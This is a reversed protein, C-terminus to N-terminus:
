FLTGSVQDEEVGGAGGRDEEDDDSWDMFEGAIMVDDTPSAVLPDKGGFLIEETTCDGYDSDEDSSPPDTGVDTDSAPPASSPSEDVADENDGEGAEPPAETEEDEKDAGEEEDDFAAPPPPFRARLLAQAHSELLYKRRLRALSSSPAASGNVVPQGALSAAFHRRWKCLAPRSSVFAVDSSHEGKSSSPSSPATAASSSAASQFVARREAQGEMAKAAVIDVHKAGMVSATFNAEPLSFSLLDYADDPRYNKISVVLKGRAIHFNAVPVSGKGFAAPSLVALTAITLSTEVFGPLKSLSSPDVRFNTVLDATLQSRTHKKGMVQVVTRPLPPAGLETQQRIFALLARRLTAHPAVPIDYRYALQGPLCVRLWYIARYFEVPKDAFLRMLRAQQVDLSAVLRAAIDAVPEDATPTTASVVRGGDPRALGAAVSRGKVAGWAYTTSDDLQMGGWRLATVLVSTISAAVNTKQHLTLYDWPPVTPALTRPDAGTCQVFKSRRAARVVGSSSTSAVERIYDVVNNVLQRNEKEVDDWKALVGIPYGDIAASVRATDKAVSWAGYDGM